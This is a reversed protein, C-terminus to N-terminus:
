PLAAGRSSAMTWIIVQSLLARKLKEMFPFYEIQAGRRRCWGSSVCPRPLAATSAFPLVPVM